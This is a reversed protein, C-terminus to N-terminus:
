RGSASSSSASSSLGYRPTPLTGPAVVLPQWPLLQWLISSGPYLRSSLRSLRACSSQSSEPAPAGDHLWRWSRMSWLSLVDSGKPATQPNLWALDGAIQSDYGIHHAGCRGHGFQVM